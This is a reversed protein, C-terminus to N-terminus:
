GPFSLQDNLQGLRGVSRMMLQSSLHAQLRQVELNPGLLLDDIFVDVDM